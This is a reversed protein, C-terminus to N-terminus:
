LREFVLIDTTGDEESVDHLEIRDERVDVIDWNDNFENFPVDENFDLALKQVGDDTFEEWTGDIVDDGKTALVTSDAAFDIVFGEYNSTEDAGADDYRAVIWDGEIIIPAVIVTDGQHNDDDDDDDYDDDDDDDDDEDCDDAVDEIIEELQDNNNIVVVSSDSLLVSIPFNFGLLNDNDLEELLDYLDEDSQLVIVSSTQNVTDYTSVTVPYELDICEIDEDEFDSCQDVLDEFADENDITFETHDALIVTIPFIIELLDDDEEFEDFIDEILDLDEESDIIIELGNANVTFPFALSLCSASDVINDGSGDNLSVRQLLTAINSNPAIIADAPPDVVENIPEQCSFFVWSGVLLMTFFKFVTKMMNM